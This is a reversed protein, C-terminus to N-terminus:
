SDVYDVIDDIKFTIDSGGSHNSNSNCSSSSSNDRQLPQQQRRSSGSGGAAPKLPISYMPLGGRSTGPEPGVVPSSTAHSKGFTNLKPAPLRPPSVAKAGVTAASGAVSRSLVDPLNSVVPPACPLQNGIAYPSVLRASKDTFSSTHHEGNNYM